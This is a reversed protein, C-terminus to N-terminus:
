LIQIERIINEEHFTRICKGSVADWIKITKDHSSSVVRNKDLLRVSTVSSIRDKYTKLHEGSSLDILEITDM